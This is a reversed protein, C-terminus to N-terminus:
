SKEDREKRFLKLVESPDFFIVRNFQVYPIKGSNKLKQATVNSVGLFKALGRIGRIPEELLPPKYRSSLNRYRELIQSVTSKLEALIEIQEDIVDRLHQQKQHKNSDNKKM